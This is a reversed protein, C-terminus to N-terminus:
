ANITISINSYREFAFADVCNPSKEATTTSKLGAFYDTSM